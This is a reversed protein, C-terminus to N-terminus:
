LNIKKNKIITALKTYLYIIIIITTTIVLIIALTTNKIKILDFVLLIFSTIIVSIHTIYFLINKRKYPRILQILSFIILIISLIM